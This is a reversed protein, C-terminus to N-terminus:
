LHRAGSWLPCRQIEDHLNRAAQVIEAHTTTVRKGCEIHHAQDVRTLGSLTKYRTNGYREIRM